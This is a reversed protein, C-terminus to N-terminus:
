FQGMRCVYHASTPTEASDCGEQVTLENEGPAVRVAEEDRYDCDGGDSAGGSITPSDEDDRKEAHEWMMVMSLPSQPSDGKRVWVTTNSLDRRTDYVGEGTPLTAQEDLIGVRGVGLMRVAAPIWGQKRAAAILWSPRYQHGPREAALRCADMSAQRTMDFRIGSARARDDMLCLSSSAVSSAFETEVVLNGTKTGRFVARAGACSLPLKERSAGPTATAESSLSSSEQESCLSTASSNPQEASNLLKCSQASPQLLDDPPSTHSTMAASQEKTTQEESGASSSLSEQESFAGSVLSM